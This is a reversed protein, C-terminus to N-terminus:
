CSSLQQLFFARRCSSVGALFLDPLFVYYCTFGGAPPFCKLSVVSMEAVLSEELFLDKALGLESWCMPLGILPHRLLVASVGTFLGAGYLSTGAPRSKLLLVSWGSLV